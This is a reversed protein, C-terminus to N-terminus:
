QWKVTIGRERIVKELEVSFDFQKCDIFILGRVSGDELKGALYKQNAESLLPKGEAGKDYIRELYLLTINGTIDLQMLKKSDADPAHSYMFEALIQTPVRKLLPKELPPTSEPAAGKRETAGEPSTVSLTRAPPSFDELQTGFRNFDYSLARQGFADSEKSAAMSAAMVSHALSAVTLVTLGQLFKRFM